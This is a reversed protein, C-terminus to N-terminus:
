SPPVYGPLSWANLYPGSLWYIFGNSVAIGSFAVGVNAPMLTRLISGTAEDLVRVGDRGANVFILGNAIAVNGHFEALAVPGWRMEGTGPDVSYLTSEVGARGGVILTGGDGHDPDYAPMMGENTGIGLQWIPGAQINDLEYAYFIEDKHNAGVLTRGENDHFIVPSTGFDED